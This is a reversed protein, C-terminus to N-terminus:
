AHPAGPSLGTRDAVAADGGRQGQRQGGRQGEGERMRGLMAAGLHLLERREGADVPGPFLPSPVPVGVRRAHRVLGALLRGADARLSDVLGLDLGAEFDLAPLAERVAADEEDDIAWSLWRSLASALCSAARVGAVVGASLEPSPDHGRGGIRMETTVNTMMETM